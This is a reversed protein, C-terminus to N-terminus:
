KKNKLDNLNKQFKLNILMAPFKCRFQFAESDKFNTTFKTSYLAKGIPYTIVQAKVKAPSPTM